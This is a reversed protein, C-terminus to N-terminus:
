EFEEESELTNTFKKMGIPDYEILKKFDFVVLDYKGMNSNVTGIVEKIIGEKKLKAELGSDKTISNIFGEDKEISYGNLNITIDGYLDDKTYALIALRENYMYKNIELFLEKGNFKLIKKNM